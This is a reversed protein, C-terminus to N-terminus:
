VPLTKFQKVIESLMKFSAEGLEIKQVEDLDSLRPWEGRQDALIENAKIKIDKLDKIVVVGDTKQFLAFSSLVMEKLDVIQKKTSSIPFSM